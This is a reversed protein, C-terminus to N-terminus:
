LQRPHVGGNLCNARGCRGNTKRVSGVRSVFDRAVPQAASRARGAVAALHASLAREVVLEAPPRRRTRRRSACWRRGYRRRMESGCSRGGVGGAHARVLAHAGYSRDGSAGWRGTGRLLRPSGGSEHELRRELLEGTEEELMAIKM